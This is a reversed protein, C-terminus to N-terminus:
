LRYGSHIVKRSRVRWITTKNNYNTFEEFLLGLDLNESTFRLGISTQETQVLKVRSSALTWSAHGVPDLSRARKLQIVM